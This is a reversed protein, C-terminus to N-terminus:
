EFPLIRIPLPACAAWASSSAQLFEVGGLVPEPVQGELLELNLMHREKAAPGPGLVEAVEM